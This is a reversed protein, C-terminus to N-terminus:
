FIENVEAKVKPVALPIEFDWKGFEPMNYLDKETCAMFDANLKKADGYLNELDNRSYNHHDRFTVSNVVNMGLEELTKIFSEPSGIASFAFIKSGKM